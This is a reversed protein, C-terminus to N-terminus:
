GGDDRADWDELKWDFRLSRFSLNGGAENGARGGPVPINDLRGCFGVTNARVQTWEDSNFNLITEVGDFMREIMATYGDKPMAQFQGPFYRSTDASDKPVRGKVSGPLDDYEMGWMKKSYGRFFRDLVEPESLKRGLDEETQRSYPFRVRKLQGEDEIEGTVSYEFPTWGTFDSLFDVVPQSTSHFIHPGYSHIFTKGSRYDFCNGAIHPRSDVVCIKLKHKLRACITASTIGAGVLLLDYGM